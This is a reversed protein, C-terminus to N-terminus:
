LESKTCNYELKARLKQGLFNGYGFGSFFLKDDSFTYDLTDMLGDSTIDMILKENSVSYESTDQDIKFFSFFIVKSNFDFFSVATSQDIEETSGDDYYFTVKGSDVLWYAKFDDKPSSEDKNCSILIFISFLVIAFRNM